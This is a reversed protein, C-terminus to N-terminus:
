SSANWTNFNLLYMGSGKRWWIYEDHTGKELNYAIWFVTVPVELEWCMWNAGKQDSLLMENGLRRSSTHNRQIAKFEHFKFPFYLHRTLAPVRSHQLASSWSKKERKATVVFLSGCHSLLMPRQSMTHSVATAWALDPMAEDFLTTSLFQTEPNNIVKPYGQM